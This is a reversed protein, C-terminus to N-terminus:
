LSAAMGTRRRVIFVAALAILSLGMMLLGAVLAREPAQGNWGEWLIVSLVRSNPTYFFVVLVLNRIAALFLLIFSTFLAPALLPLLVRMVTTFWGAGSTRAAEELEHSVQYMSGNVIRSGVPLLVVVLLIGMMGLTGSIPRFAPLGIYAWAFAIAMVVGPAVRPAWTIFELLPRGAFNTRVLVYGALACVLTGIGGVMVGMLVTNTIASTLRPDGLSIVWHNLTFGTASWVGWAKMFSGVVLMTLPLVAALFFYLVVIAFTVWRWRGLTTPQQSYGRGSITVFSKGRLLIMQLTILLSVMLLFFSGLATASPLDQPYEQSYTYIRTSLVYVKAPVGLIVETEFSELVFIFALFVAGLVTPMAVPITVYRLAQLRSAGSMRASEELSADMARFAPVALLFIFAALSMCSVWIIGAYSYVNFFPESILGLQQLGANLVGSKGAILTWAVIMPLPPAFFKIWVLTELFNRGPTDTRTVVWALFLGIVTAVAVRVVALWVTTWIMEYTSPTSFVKQYATLTFQGSETRFSQIFLMSVPYLVLFGLLATLLTAPWWQRVAELAGAWAAPREVKAPSSVIVSV